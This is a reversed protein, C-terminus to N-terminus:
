GIINEQIIINKNKQVIYQERSYYYIDNKQIIINTMRKVYKVRLLSNHVVRSWTYSIYIICSSTSLSELPLNRFKGWRYITHWEIECTHILKIIRCTYSM